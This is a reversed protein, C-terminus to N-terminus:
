IERGFWIVRGNIKVLDQQLEVSEYKDNDSIVKVMGSPYVVQLRKILIFDDLAIAYIGGQPDLHNHGHNILVLDDTMLTPEMSDGKVSILSMKRPDGKKLIWDKRFAVKIDVDNVPVLGGGASIRDSFRPITVFECSPDQAAAAPDKESHPPESGGALLEDLSIKGLEAIKVLKDKDPTQKDDEFKSVSTPFKYGLLKAFETQNLKLGKRILRIKEGLSSNTM